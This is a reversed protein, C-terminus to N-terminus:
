LAGAKQINDSMSAKIYGKTFSMIIPIIRAPASAYRMCLIPSLALNMIAIFAMALMATVIIPNSITNCNIFLTSFVAVSVILFKPFFLM